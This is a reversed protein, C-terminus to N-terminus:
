RWFPKALEAIRESPSIGIDSLQHEDLAALQRRTRARQRWRQVLELLRRLSVSGTSLRLARPLVREM